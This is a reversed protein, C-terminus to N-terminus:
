WKASSNAEKIAEYSKKLIYVYKEVEEEPNHQIPENLVEYYLVPYKLGPMDEVGDGDYREVMVKLWKLYREMDKMELDVYPIITKPSNWFQILIQMDYEQATRIVLDSITWDYEGDVDINGWNFVATPHPRIWVAGVNKIDELEMRLREEIEDISLLVRRGTKDKKELPVPLLIGFHYSEGDVSKIESIKETENTTIVVASEGQKHFTVYKFGFLLCLGSILITIAFIELLLKRSM